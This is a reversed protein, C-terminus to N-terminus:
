QREKRKQQLAYLLWGTICFSLTVYAVAGVWEPMEEESFINISNLIISMSGLIIILVLVAKSKFIEM